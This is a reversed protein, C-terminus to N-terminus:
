DARFKQCAATKYWVYIGVLASALYGAWVWRLIGGVGYKDAVPGFAILVLSAFGWCGGVILGMRQGLNAGKAHRAMAVILPFTGTCTFSMVFLSAVAIKSDMTFLYLFYFPIGVLFAFICTKLEPIKRSVRAWLFAGSMAGLGFLMTSFGGFPLDFGMENVLRIPLFSIIILTATTGPLAMLMIMWFPLRHKEHKSNIHVARDVALRFRVMSMVIIGLLPGLLLVLLAKLGWTDVLLTSVWAGTSSGLFGGMLFITSSEATPIRRLLYVARLGEPHTIAIGTGALLVLAFPLLVRISDGRGAPLLAFFCVAGSLVLGLPMFFPRKKSARLHGTAIQVANCVINFVALLAVVTKLSVQFYDRIAPLLPPLMGAFMDVVFHIFSLAFLQRFQFIKLKEISAM